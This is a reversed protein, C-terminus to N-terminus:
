SFEFFDGCYLTISVGQARYRPMPGQEDLEFAIRQEAFFAEIALRSLEVGVVDLDRKALWVLDASKGCLPALVRTGAPLSPWYRRLAASGGAEHWGTRGERWRGLWDEAGSM